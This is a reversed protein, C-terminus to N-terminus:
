ARKNTDTRAHLASVPEPCLNSAAQEKMNEMNYPPTDAVIPNCHAAPHM